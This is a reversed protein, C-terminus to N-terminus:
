TKPRGSRAARKKDERWKKEAAKKRIESHVDLEKVDMVLIQVWSKRGHIHAGTTMYFGWRKSREFQRRKVQYTVGGFNIELIEEMEAFKAKPM